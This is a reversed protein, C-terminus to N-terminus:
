ETEDGCDELAFRIALRFFSPVARGDLVAPEFTWHRMAELAAHTMPPGGATELLTPLSTKGREDVLARAAVTGEVCAAKLSEPYHPAPGAQHSPPAIAPDAMEPQTLDVAQAAARRAAEVSAALSAGAEGYPSLDTGAFAPHLAEAVSWDWVAAETEGLGARAISRFLSAMAMLPAARNGGQIADTMEALVAEAGARGTQWDGARLAGDADRLRGMWGELVNELADAQAAPAPAAASDAPTQAGANCGIATFPLLVGLALVWSPSRSGASRSGASGSGASRFGM